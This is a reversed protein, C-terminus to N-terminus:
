STFYAVREQELRQAVTESMYELMQDIPPPSDITATGSLLGIKERTKKDICQSAITWLWVFAPPIPFIVARALREPFMTLLLKSTSQIFPLQSAANLNKWGKGGRVDIVVSILETSERSLQRDLFIALATAYIATNCIGDDIQGPTVHFIRAGISDCLPKMKNQARRYLRVFQPLATTTMTKTESNHMRLAMAAAIKWEDDVDEKDGITTTPEHLFDNDSVAYQRRWNMYVRLAKAAGTKNKNKSTYFRRREAQTSGPVEQQLWSDDEKPIEALESSSSLLASSTRTSTPPGGGSKDDIVPPTTAPTRSSFAKGLIEDFITKGLFRHLRWLIVFIAIAFFHTMSSVQISSQNEESFMAGPAAM